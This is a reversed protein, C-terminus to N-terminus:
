NYIARFAVNENSYLTYSVDSQKVFDLMVPGAGNSMRFQVSVNDILGRVSDEADVFPLEVVQYYLGSSSLEDDLWDAAYIDQYVKSVNNLRGRSDIIDQSLIRFNENLANYIATGKDGPDLVVIGTQLKTSM